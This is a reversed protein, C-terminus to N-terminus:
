QNFPVSAPASVNRFQDVRNMIGTRSDLEFAQWVTGVQNAPVSVRAVETGLNNGEPLNFNGAAHVAVVAGSNSLATSNASARNTYDHVYFRYVGPQVVNIRTQEPGYSNVVDRYLMVNPAANLDGRAAYYTHFRTGDAAAPGTLHSDLDHPTAGWRLVIDVPAQIIFGSTTQSTERVTPVHAITERSERVFDQSPSRGMFYAASGIHSSGGQTIATLQNQMLAPSIAPPVHAVQTDPLPVGPENTRTDPQSTNLRNLTIMGARLYLRSHLNLSNDFNEGLSAMKQGNEPEHWLGTLNVPILIEEGIVEGIAPNSVPDAGVVKRGNPTDVYGETYFNTVNKSKATDISKTTPGWLGAPNFTYAKVDADVMMSVYQALGGGLSHGTVVIDNKNCGPDNSCGEIVKKTFELAAKYQAPVTFPQAFDAIWDKLSGTGEFVIVRKGDENKYVEAHFSIPDKSALVSVIDSDLKDDNRQITRIDEASLSGDRSLIDVLASTAAEDRAEKFSARTSRIREWDKVKLGSSDDEVKHKYIEDSMAAYPLADEVKKMDESSLQQGWANSFLLLSVTIGGLAARILKGNMHM